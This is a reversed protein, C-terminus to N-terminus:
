ETETETTEGVEGETDGKVEVDNDTRLMESSDDPIRVQNAPNESEDVLNSDHIIKMDERLKGVSYKKRIGSTPLTNMVTELQTNDLDGLYEVMDSISDYEEHSFLVADPQNNKLIFIKGFVEAKGRCIKYNKMMDSNSVIAQTFINM